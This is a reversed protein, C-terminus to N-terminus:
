EESRAAALPSSAVPWASAFTAYLSANGSVRQRRLRTVRHFRAVAKEALRPRARDPNNHQRQTAM